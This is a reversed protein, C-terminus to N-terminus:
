TDGYTTFGRNDVAHGGFLLVVERAADYAFGAPFRATPGQTAAQIWRTGDWEWTDSMMQGLQAGGFLVVKERESDYTM